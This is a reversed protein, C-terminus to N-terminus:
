VFLSVVKAQALGATVATIVASKPRAQGSEKKAASKLGNILAKGQSTSYTRQVLKILTEPVLKDEASTQSGSAKRENSSFNTRARSEKDSAEELIEAVTQVEGSRVHEPALM